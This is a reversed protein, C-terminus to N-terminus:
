VKFLTMMILYFKFYNLKGCLINLLFAEGQTSNKMNAFFSVFYRSDKNALGCIMPICCRLRKNGIIEDPTLSVYAYVSACFEMLSLHVFQYQYGLQSEIKEIFGLLEDGNEDFDSILEKMESLSFILKGQDLLHWAIKCVRLIYQKNKENQMMKYVPENNKNIHNQLFYLFICCYLETMSSFSAVLISCMATLYFPVSAMAKAILSAQLVKEVDEKQDKNVSKKIYETIGNNNFGIIQINLKDKCEKVADKYAAIAGIRGSVVCRYKQVNLADALANVIPPKSSNQSSQCLLENLYIFEDLGDVVFMISLHPCISCGKLVDKYLTNLLDDLNGTNQLQNLQKCELYFVFDLNSWILGNAWDLLCKKLLWTKGIGAIGSILLLPVEKSIVESFEIPQHSLQKQLFFEREFINVTDSEVENADVFTLEVFKNLLEINIPTKVRHM